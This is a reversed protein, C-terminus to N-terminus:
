SKMRKYLCIKTMKKCAEKEAKWSKEVALTMDEIM